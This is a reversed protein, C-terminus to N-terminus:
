VVYENQSKTKGGSSKDYEGGKMNIRKYARKVEKRVMEQRSKCARCNDPTGCVFFYKCRFVLM